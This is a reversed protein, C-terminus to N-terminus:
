AVEKLEKLIDLLSEILTELENTYLLDRITDDGSNRLIIDLLPKGSAYSLITYEEIKM